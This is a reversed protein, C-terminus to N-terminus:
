DRATPAPCAAADSADANPESMTGTTADGLATPPANEPVADVGAEVEVDVDM